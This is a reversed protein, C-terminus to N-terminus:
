EPNSMKHCNIDNTINRLLEEAENQGLIQKLKNGSTKGEWSNLLKIVSDKTDPSLDKLANEIVRRNAKGLDKPRFVAGM